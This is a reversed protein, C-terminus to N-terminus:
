LDPEPLVDAIRWQTQYKALAYGACPDLSVGSFNSAAKSTSCMNPDELNTSFTRRKFELDFKAPIQITTIEYKFSDILSNNM